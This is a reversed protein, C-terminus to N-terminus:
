DWPLLTEGDWRQSNVVETAAFNPLTDAQRKYEEMTWYELAEVQGTWRSFFIETECLKVMGKWQDDSSEFCIM